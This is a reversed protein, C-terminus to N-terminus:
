SVITMSVGSSWPGLKGTRTLWRAVYTAVKGADAPDHTVFFPSKTQTAIFVATSPDPAPATGIAVWLEMSIVGYPKAKTEPTLSDRYQLKHQQPTAQLIDLVPFTTPEPVPTPPFSDVTLGLSTLVGPDVPPDFSKIIQALTRALSEAAARAADKDAVTVPTRTAPNTAAAYATTWDGTASTLAAAQPASIGYDAFDVAVIADFNILWADFGADSAPIYPM